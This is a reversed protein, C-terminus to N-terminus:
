VVSCTIFDKGARNKSPMRYIKLEWDENCDEMEDMINNFSSWFSESGTVYRTGDDGVVIYNKYDKDDSKENHIALEAFFDVKIVVPGEITAQDLRVCDTTDKLQVREKASIDRSTNEIRVSYGTM